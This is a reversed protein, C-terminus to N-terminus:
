TASFLRKRSYSIARKKKQQKKLFATEVSPDAVKRHVREVSPDACNVMLKARPTSSFSMEAIAFDCRPEAGKECGRAPLHPFPERRRAGPGSVWTPFRNKQEM